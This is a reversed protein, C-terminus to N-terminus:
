DSNKQAELAKKLKPNYELDDDVRQKIAAAMQELFRSPSDVKRRRIEVFSHHANRLKIGFTDEMLAVIETIDVDGNNFQLTYYLGYILEVLNVHSGTWKLMPVPKPKKPQVPVLTGDLGGIRNLIETQLMEFAIFRAYMYDLGTSFEPDADPLEPQLVTPIEAGRTFYMADMESFGNKFYQYLFANLKFFREVLKLEQRYFLLLMDKTGAPKNMDLNYLEIHFIRLAYFKPKITKFFWIEIEQSPFPRSLVKERLTQLVTRIEQLAQALRKVPDIEKGILVALFGILRKYLEDYFQTFM